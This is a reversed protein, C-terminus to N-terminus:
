NSLSLSFGYLSPSIEAYRLYNVLVEASEADPTYLVGKAENNQWVIRYSQQGQNQLTKANPAFGRHAHRILPIEIHNENLFSLAEHWHPFVKVCISGMRNKGFILIGDRRATLRIDSVPKVESYWNLAALAAINLTLLALMSRIVMKYAKPM